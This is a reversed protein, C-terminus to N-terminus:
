IYVVSYHVSYTYQVYQAYVNPFNREIEKECGSSYLM